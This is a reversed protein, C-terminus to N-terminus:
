RLTHDYDAIECAEKLKVYPLGVKSCLLLCETIPVHQMNFLLGFSCLTTKACRNLIVKTGLSHRSCSLYRPSMWRIDRTLISSKLCDAWWNFCRGRKTGTGRRKQRIGSQHLRWWRKWSFVQIGLMLDAHCTAMHFETGTLLNLLGLAVVVVFVTFFIWAMPMVDGIPGAVQFLAIDKLWVWNCLATSAVYWRLGHIVRWWKCCLPWQVLYMESNTAQQGHLKMVRTAGSAQSQM